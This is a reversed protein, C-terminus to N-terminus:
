PQERLEPHHQPRYPADRHEGRRLLPQLHVSDVLLRGSRTMRWRKVQRPDAPQHRHAPLEAEPRPLPEPLTQRAVAVEQVRANPRHTLRAFLVCGKVAHHGFDPPNTATHHLVGGHQLRRHLPRFVAPLVAHLGVREDDGRGRRVRM